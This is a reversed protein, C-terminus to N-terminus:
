RRHLPGAGMRDGQDRKIGFGALFYPRLLGVVSQWEQKKPRPRDLLAISMCRYCTMAPCDPGDCFACVEVATGCRSCRKSGSAQDSM